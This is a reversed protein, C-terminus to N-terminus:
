PNVDWVFYQALSKLDGNENKANIENSVSGYNM